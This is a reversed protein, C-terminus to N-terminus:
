SYPGVPQGASAASRPTAEDRTPSLLALLLAGVYGVVTVGLFVNVLATATVQTSRRRVAVYTPIFYIAIAVVAAVALLVLYLWSWSNDNM